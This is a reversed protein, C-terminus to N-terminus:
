KNSRAPERSGSEDWEELWAAIRCGFDRPREAFFHDALDSAARQLESGNEEIVALLERGEQQFKGDEGDRDIRDGLFSLDHARGLLNGVTHVEESLNKLVVPNLPRLINLQYLLQKATTRFSHFDKAAGSAKAAALAKRARKYSKQVAWRLQRCDFNDLSWEDIEEAVKKLIPVAQTQWEAFGAVFNELELVLTQEVRHYNRRNQRRTTDQLQRVTQLRVEADRVESILRAVDRLCHDQRKFLAPGIEKKVLRLAARAKKLHRRTEHVPTDDTEKEGTAVALAVEVQKRCIRRLEHGLSQDRRLEYSM